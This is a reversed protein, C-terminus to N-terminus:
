TKDITLASRMGYDSSCWVVCPGDIKNKSLGMASLGTMLAGLAAGSDGFSDVPHEMRCDGMIFEQNRLCAVGWEKAFFNEGNFGAYVTKVSTDKLDIESFMSQMTDALGDGRYANESYRHGEEFGTAVALIKAIHERAIGSEDPLGLLLFGAGEGPVFGDMVGESLIRDEIDLNGLLRLDLYTDVGGVIILKESGSILTDMAEKLAVLGASRGNAFLKSRKTNINLESQASLLEIFNDTVSNSLDPIAEPVGLYVPINKTNQIGELVEQLALSALQLMRSQRSTLAREKERITENLPPLFEDPVTSMTLPEFRKGYIPSEDFKSIGARVSAFTQIANLGVSTIMGIGYIAIGDQSM